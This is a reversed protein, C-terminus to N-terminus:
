PVFQNACEDILSRDRKRRKKQSDDNMIENIVDEEEDEMLLSLRKKLSTEAENENSDSMFRIINIFLYIKAQM